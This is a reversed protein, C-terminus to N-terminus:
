GVPYRWGLTTSKPQHTDHNVFSLRAHDTVRNDIFRHVPNFCLKQWPIRSALATVLSNNDSNSFRQQWLKERVQLLNDPEEHIQKNQFSFGRAVTLIEVM